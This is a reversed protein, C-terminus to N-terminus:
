PQGPGGALWEPHVHGGEARARGGPTLLPRWSWRQLEGALPASIPRPTWCPRKPTTLRTQPTPRSWHSLIVPSNTLSAQECDQRFQCWVSVGLSPPSLHVPPPSGQRTQGGRVSRGQRPGVRREVPASGTDSPLVCGVFGRFGLTRRGGWSGAPTQHQGGWGGRSVLPSDQMYHDDHATGEGEGPAEPEGSGGGTSRSGPMWFWSKDGLSELQLGVWHGVGRKPNGAPM